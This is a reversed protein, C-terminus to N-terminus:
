YGAVLALSFTTLMTLFAPDPLMMGMGLYSTLGIGWGLASKL